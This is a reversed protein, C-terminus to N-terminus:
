KNTILEQLVEKLHSINMPKAVFRDANMNIENTLVEESFATMIVTKIHNFHAKVYRSFELGGKDNIDEQNLRVDILAININEGLKSKANEITTSPIINFDYKLVKALSQLYDEMDDLILVNCKKNGNIPKETVLERFSIPSHVIKVQINTHAYIYYGLETLDEVGLRRISNDNEFVPYDINHLQIEIPEIRKIVDIYGGELSPINSYEPADVVATSIKIGKLNALGEVIDQFDIGKFVPHNIKKFTMEDGADLKYIKEDFKEIVPIFEPKLVNYSNTLIALPKEPFIDDRLKVLKESIKIFDPHLTAEGNGCITIYDIMTGKDKHYILSKQIEKVIKKGPIVGKQFEIQDVVSRPTKGMDCYACNFSCIKFLPFFNIGLSYRLRRSVIPGYVIKNKSNWIHGEAVPVIGHNIVEVNTM